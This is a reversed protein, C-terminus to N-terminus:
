IGEPIAVVDFIESAGLEIARRKGTVMDHEVVCCPFSKIDDDEGRIRSRSRGVYFFRETVHLGRVYGRFKWILRGYVTQVTQTKSECFWIEDKFPRVSHPHDLGHLAIEPEGNKDVRFLFGERRVQRWRERKGKNLTFATGYLNGNDAFGLSNLHVADSDKSSLLCVTEPINEFLEMRVIRNLGTRNVFLLGDRIRIDHIDWNQFKWVQNEVLKQGDFWYFGLEHKQGIFVGNDHFAIGRAEIDLLKRQSLDDFDVVFVGPNKNCCSVLFKV